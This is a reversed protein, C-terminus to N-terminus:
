RFGSGSYCCDLIVTINDGKEEALEDLLYALTVDPIVGKVWKEEEDDYGGDYAVLCQIESSTAVWEPPKPLTSGHGAYFILIPDGKKITEDTKLKKLGSIIKDRTAGENLLTRIHIVDNPVGMTAVLFNEVLHVDAVADDLKNLAPYDNIGILLAHM